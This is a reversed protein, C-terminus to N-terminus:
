SCAASRSIPSYPGAGASHETTGAKASRPEAVGAPALFLCLVPIHTRQGAVEGHLCAARRRRSWRRRPATVGVRRGGLPLGPTQPLELGIRQFESALFRM